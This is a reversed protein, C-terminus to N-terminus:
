AHVVEVRCAVCPDFAHAILNGDRVLAAEDKAEISGLADVFRGGPHFNWETPALIAYDIVRGDDVVARHLLVGRATHAWAYGEGHEHFGALDDGPAADVVLAALETLRAVLRTAV